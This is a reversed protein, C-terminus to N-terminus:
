RTIILVCGAFICGIAIIAPLRLASRASFRAALSGCAAGLAAAAVGSPVSLPWAIVAATVAHVIVRLATVTWTEPRALPGGGAYPRAGENPRAASM